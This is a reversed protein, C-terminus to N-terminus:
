GSMTNSDALDYMAVMYPHKPDYETLTKGFRVKGCPRINRGIRSEAEDGLDLRFEEAAVKLKDVIEPYKYYLNEKEENDNRLNYLEEIVQDQKRFHLKWQDDRIAELNNGLYYCFFRHPSKEMEPNMIIARINKGDIVRDQPIQVGAIESITPFLDMATVLESSNAGEPIIGPWRMICPVRIGGEWTTGKIGRFPANSGGEGRARSGNDSTFIVLTDEDISLKKLENLIIGSVWDICEVAGGYGGNTSKEIFHRPVFLPLHVYMHALYLFFPEDKHKRIFELSEEAYRETLGAQDPQEQIIRDNRILPLPKGEPHDSQRGMDNSYPLGYYEDFGHNLPLFEPQDGCHWKGVIKTHYGAKKLQKAITIEDPHLGEKGGPFLVLEKHDTFDGFGIRPPYCGTM